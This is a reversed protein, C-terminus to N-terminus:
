LNGKVKYRKKIKAIIPHNRFKFVINDIDDLGECVKEYPFEYLNLSDTIDGFHQYFEKLVEENKLLMKENKTLMIKSDGRAHKNSFYPKWTDM